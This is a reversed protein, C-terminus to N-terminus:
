LAVVAVLWQEVRLLPQVVGVVRVGDGTRVAPDVVCM